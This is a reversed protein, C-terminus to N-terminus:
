HVHVRSGITTFNWAALADALRMGVCGHSTPRVGFVSAPQWYNTHLAYGGHAFYQTYLIDKLFYGEPASRPIGTTLSDMTENPVRSFIRFTGRPTSFGAKGTTVPADLAREDGDMLSLRQAQVNVDVWRESAGIGSPRRVPPTSAELPRPAEAIPTWPDEPAFAQNTVAGFLGADRAIDGVLAETVDGERAWPTDSRWRQLV